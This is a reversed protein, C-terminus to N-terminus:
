CELIMYLDGRYIEVGLNYVYQITEQTQSNIAYNSATYSVNGIGVTHTRLEVM